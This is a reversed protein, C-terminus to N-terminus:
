TSYNLEIYEKPTVINKEKPFDKINGAILYDIEGSKYVEYFM